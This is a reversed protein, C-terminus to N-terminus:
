FIRPNIYKGNPAPVRDAIAAGCDQVTGTSLGINDTITGTIV